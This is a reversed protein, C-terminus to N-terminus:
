SAMTTNVAMERSNPRPGEVSVSAHLCHTYEAFQKVDDTQNALGAKDKLPLTIMIIHLTEIQRAFVSRSLNSCQVAQLCNLRIM